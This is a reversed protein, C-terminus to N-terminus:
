MSIGYGQGLQPAAIESAALAATRTEQIERIELRAQAVRDDLEQSRTDMVGRAEQAADVAQDLAEGHLRVNGPEVGPAQEAAARQQSAEAAQHEGVPGNLVQEAYERLAFSQQQFPQGQYQFEPQPETHVQGHDLELAPEPEPMQWDIEADPESMNWDLEADPEAAQFAEPEPQFEPEAAEPQRLDLQRQAAQARERTEETHEHWAQRATHVAELKGAEERLEAARADDAVAQAHLQERGAEDAAALDLTRQGAVRHLDELETYTEQIQEAVYAPAWAEEREYRAVMERLQTDSAGVLDMRDEPEGLARFARDWDQRFDVAGRAPRPGIADSDSDYGHAERYAAVTGAREIWAERGQETGPVPGLRRAWEPMEETDALAQGLQLRRQDMLEAAAAAYEGKEGEIGAVRTQWRDREEAEARRQDALEARRQDEQGAHLVEVATNTLMLQDLWAAEAQPDALPADVVAATHFPEATHFEPQEVPQFEQPPAILWAEPEEEVAAAPAEDAVAQALQLAGFLEPVAQEQARVHQRVDAEDARVRTREAAEIRRELRWHVVSGPDRADGLEGDLAERLLQEADHGEAHTHRALRILPGYSDADRLEAYAAEGLTDFIVRGYDAEAQERQLDDVIFSWRSLHVSADQSERAVATAAKEATNNQLAETLVAMHDPAEMGEVMERPDVETVTYAWNGERGRTLAVYLSERTGVGDQLVRCRDVTRGQAAHVTGAYALDVSEQVYASPLTMLEGDDYRVTLTGAASDREVVTVVDRNIAFRDGSHSRIDRDNKRLQVQDGVGLTISRGAVEIGEPEVQGFRVLAERARAALDDAQNQERTILLTSKGMLTDSLWGQYAAEMMEERDGGMLRGRDEYEALVSADGERLRLSADQEWEAHFRMIQDLQYPREVQTALEQFMGGADVATLQHHDGSYIVKAGAAEALRRVEELQWTASMGAEDVIVLQNPRLRFRELEPNSHGAALSRNSVIFRDLNGVSSVGEEALVRAARESTTLGIVSRGSATWADHIAANLRSKGSGAPGVLVEAQRDSGLIGRLAAEQGANLGRGELAQEIAEESFVPAGTLTTSRIIREERGLQQRTAYQDAQPVSYISEGNALQLSKPVPILEPATLMVVDYERGTLAADALEDVVAKVQHAELGGLCDPLNRAVEVVLNSRTFAAKELQVTAISDRIVQAPDFEMRDTGAALAAASVAAPVGALSARTDAIASEEWRRLLEERPISEGKKPRLKPDTAVRDAMKALEHAKPAHGYEEEYAKALEAVGKTVTKRRSSFKDILAPDVGLIERAKGDPRTGFRIGLRRVAAEEAVRESIHGAAKAERYILKSDIAGWKSREEGTVKDTTTYQVRNWIAVHVHLQPDNDRSTHQRFAAATFDHADVRRVTSVEGKKGANRGERAYGAQEQMHDLGAQVGEMWSGWLQDAQWTYLEAMETNGSERAEIAAVQLSAHLVSWSKPASFTTDFFTRNKDMTRLVKAEAARLQEPTANPGLEEQAEAVKRERSKSYDRLAPGVRFEARTDAHVKAKAQRYAETGVQLEPHEARYDAWRSKMVSHLEDVRQPDTVHAYMERMLKPDVEGTLGLDAAGSGMWVGAPEGALEVAKLYYNEGGSSVQSLFYEPSAGASVTATM